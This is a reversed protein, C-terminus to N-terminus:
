IASSSAYLLQYGERTTPLGRSKEFAIPEKILDSRRYAQVAEESEWFTITMEDGKDPRNCHFIALVGPQEKFRPIFGSLFEDVAPMQEEPVKSSTFTIFM